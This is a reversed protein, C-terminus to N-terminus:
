PFSFIGFVKNKKKRPPFVPKFFFDTRSASSPPLYLKRNKKIDMEFSFGFFSFDCWCWFNFFLFFFWHRDFRFLSRSASSPPPEPACSLDKKKKLGRNKKQNKGDRGVVLSNTILKGVVLLFFIQFYLKGRSLQDFWKRFFLTSFFFFQFTLEVLIWRM